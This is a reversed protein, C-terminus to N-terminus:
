VKRGNKVMLGDLFNRLFQDLCPRYQRQGEKRFIASVEHKSVKLDALGMIEVIEEAKLELAIKLKRMIINNNLTKEPKPQEGERKGRNVAILGNLFIALQKDHMSEYQPDDEKKMWDSVQGRTVEVEAAAWFSIMQDDNFDFAYRLRRLIDNNTM